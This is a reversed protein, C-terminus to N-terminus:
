WIQRLEHVWEAMAKGKAEFFLRISLCIVFSIGIFFPTTIAAQTYTVHVDVFSLITPQALWCVAFVAVRKTGEEITSMAPTQM